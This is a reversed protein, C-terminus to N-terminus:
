NANLGYCDEGRKGFVLLGFGVVRIQVAPVSITAVVRLCQQHIAMRLLTAAFVNHPECEILGMMEKTSALYPSSPLPYPAQSKCYETGFYTFGACLSACKVNTMSPDTTMSGTLARSSSDTYCGLYKFLGITPSSSTSAPATV